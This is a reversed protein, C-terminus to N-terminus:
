VRLRDARWRGPAIGVKGSSRPVVGKLSESRANPVCCNTRKRQKAYGSAAEVGSNASSRKIKVGRIFIRSCASCRKQKVGGACFVRGISCGRKFRVIGAVVVCGISREREKVVRSATSVRSYTSIRENNVASGVFISGDTM